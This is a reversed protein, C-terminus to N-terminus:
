PRAWPARHIGCETKESGSWRGARVTEGDGVTATCPACGISLYGQAVLPHLPLRRERFTEAIQRPTWEALPNIKIWAGSAEFRALRERQGGHYRKRGTIWAAYGSLVRDLPEVKRLNCCRDGDRQWLRGDPDAAAVDAASPEVSLVNTLGLRGALEDRYALTEPFHKGTELFIVPTAPDVEAVLSLIVASEAGFSSVVAIEGPFERSIVIRLLEPASLHGLRASLQAAMRAAVDAAGIVASHAAGIRRSNM